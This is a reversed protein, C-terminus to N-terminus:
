RRRALTLGDAMPLMVSDVRADALVEDNFAIMALDDADNPAPNVVRGHRLVNDVLIVGDPRMRPVLEAWYVPYGGKDADIFAFDLCPEDPLRRLTESAAGLRLEIRDALGARAWYRRAVSTYEESVDHCILTGGPALGRAIAISSLGTFTGVEAANTAGIIKVLLTMFGAQEPAIQISAVDPLLRATENILDTVLDDPSPCHALVYQHLEDTIPTPKVSM